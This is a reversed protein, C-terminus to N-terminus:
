RQRRELSWGTAIWFRPRSTRHSTSTSSIGGTRGCLVKAALDPKVFVAGAVGCSSPLSPRHISASGMLNAARCLHGSDRFIKSLLPM